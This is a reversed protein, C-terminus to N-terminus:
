VAIDKVLSLLPAKFVGSNGSNLDSVRFYIKLYDTNVLQSIVRIVM